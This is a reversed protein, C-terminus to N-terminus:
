RQITLRERKEELHLLLQNFSNAFLEVGQDELTQTIQDLDIGLSKLTQIHKLAEEANEEIRNEAVGHDRFADLTALPLTNVTQPGMLAEVYMVDPFSPNKTSTSAWLPRQVSAGQKRLAEFRESQFVKKFEQYAIKSNAIATKGLLAKLEHKEADTTQNDIKSQIIEETTTDVRSVFFSAVSQAGRVSGDKKAMDELGLLYAEMVEQYRKVSFILTVNVNMGESILTRIAPLGHPTAPVKIMLNVRNVRRHLDRAQEITGKTDHALLPSVELSVFGDRGQTAQFVPLFVDCALKIDQIVLNWYINEPSLGAEVYRIIEHDYGDSKSIAKDFITPNSTVGSLGDSEIMRKFVGEHIMDRQIHDCWISQGFTQIAKLRNEPM